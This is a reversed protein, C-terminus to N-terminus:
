ENVNDNKVKQCCLGTLDVLIFDQPHNCKFIVLFMEKVTDGKNLQERKFKIQESNRLYWREHSVAACVFNM